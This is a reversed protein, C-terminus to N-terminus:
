KLGAKRLAALYRENKAPDKFPVTAALREASFNPDIKLIEAAAERAEEERGAYMCSVTLGAYALVDKPERQLVRKVAAIAKDYQGTERYAVGLHHWFNPPGLPNLRIAKEFHLIAEEHRGAFNLTFGLSFYAHSSSPDLEVAKQAEAIGREHQRVMTFLHGLLAQASAMSNDLEIAKRALEIAKMLSEKPSKSAGLWVDLMIGRGLALYAAAYNPDLTIAQKILEQAKANDEKNNRYQCARAEAVRLYAELSETSRAQVRAEEGMTLHVQLATIIEKTIQDQVAFIDKLERDYREAWLHHGKIADILQATIRVKDSIKRVSGELVYRVGLEEAVQKVKLAKGKFSFSSERAIVFLNGVKCLSTIIDESLGDSLYDQKPDDSMNVFPLVAISPRDPLPFAMKEKSAVEFKPTPPTVPKSIKEPSPPTIKEKTAVEASPPVVASAKEPQPAVVKEKSTVEPQPASPTYFKWIVIAAIVVVLAVVLGIVARQWQRPKAKKEGIVKGAAEPEMLVKYVRVPEAINKVTQEGLFQYGLPLKNKVQDFATGSICIGGAESLSELRAAINVGDGFIKDGEEIVDGLNVGIRFEMKRNGPLEANRTKLEKQIEVACRVADVVSGFEALVNDGPADVVRGRHQQVLSGMVDKYAKLTRLTWEEDEGMLLSYGKVDASLIATLKRKVEQTTM